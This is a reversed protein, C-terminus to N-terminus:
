RRGGVNGYKPASAAGDYSPLQEGGVAQTSPGDIRVGDLGSVLGDRDGMVNQEEIHSGGVADYAPTAMVDGTSGSDSGRQLRVGLGGMVKRSEWRLEEGCVDLRADWQLLYTRVLNPTAFGPVIEPGLKQLLSHTVNLATGIPFSEGTSNSNGASATPTFGPGLSSKEDRPFGNTNNNSAEELVPLELKDGGGSRYRYEFLAYESFCEADGPDLRSQTQPNTRVQSRAVVSISLRSLTIKPTPIDDDAADDDEAPKEGYDTNDLLPRRRRSIALFFPLPDTSPADLYLTDPATFTISLNLRPLAAKKFISRTRERFSLSGEAHSPLLRLTRVEDDFQISRWQTFARGTATTPTNNVVPIFVEEDMKGIWLSKWGAGLNPVEAKVKYTISGSVTIRPSLGIGNFMGLSDPLPQGNPLLNFYAATGPWLGDPPLVDAKHENIMEPSVGEACQPVTLEFEWRLSGGDEGRRSTAIEFSPDRLEYVHSFLVSKCNFHLTRRNNGSGVVRTIRIKSRCSFVLNINPHSDARAANKIALSLHGKILSNTPHPPPTHFIISLNSM